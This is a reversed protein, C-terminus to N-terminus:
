SLVAVIVDYLQKTADLGVQEEGLWDEPLGFGLEIASLHRFTCSCDSISGVFWKNPFKLLDIIGPIKYLYDDAKQFRVLDTNLFRLNAPSDTSLYLSYCM